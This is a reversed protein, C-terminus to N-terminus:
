IGENVSVQELVITGAIEGVREPEGPARSNFIGLILEISRDVRQIPSDLSLAVRPGPKRAELTHACRSAWRMAALLTIHV